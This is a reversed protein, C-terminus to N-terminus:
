GDGGGQGTDNGGDPTDGPFGPLTTGPQGPEPPNIPTGDGNGQGNNNGNGQGNNGNGPGNNNGNGQGNGQGPPCILGGLLCGDNQPPEPLPDLGNGKMNPDGVEVNPLFPENPKDIAKSAEDM